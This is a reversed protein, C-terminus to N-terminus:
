LVSVNISSLVYVTQPIQQTQLDPKMIQPKSISNTCVSVVSLLQEPHTLM